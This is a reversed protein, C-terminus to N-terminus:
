GVTKLIGFKDRAEGSCWGKTVHIDHADKVRNYLLSMLATNGFAYM